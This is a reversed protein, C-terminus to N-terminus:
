NRTKLEQSVRKADREASKRFMEDPHFDIQYRLIELLQTLRQKGLHAIDIKPRIENIEM